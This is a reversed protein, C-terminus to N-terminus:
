DVPRWMWRGGVLIFRYPYEVGMESIVWIWVDDPGAKQIGKSIGHSSDNKEHMVRSSEVFGRTMGIDPPQTLPDELNALHRLHRIVLADPSLEMYEEFSLGLRLVCAERMREDTMAAVRDRFGLALKQHEKQFAPAMLDYAREYDDELVAQRLQEFVKIPTNDPDGCGAVSVTLVALGLIVSVRSM